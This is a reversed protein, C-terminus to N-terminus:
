LMSALVYHAERIFHERNESGHCGIQGQDLAWPEMGNGSGKGTSEVDHYSVRLQGLGKMGIASRDPM